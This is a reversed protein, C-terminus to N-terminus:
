NGAARWARKVRDACEALVHSSMKSYEVLVDLMLVSSDDAHVLQDGVWSYNGNILSEALRAALSPYEPCMEPDRHSLDCYNCGHLVGLNILLDHIETDRNLADMNPDPDGYLDAIQCILDWAQIFDTPASM